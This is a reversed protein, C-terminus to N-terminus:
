VPEKKQTPMLTRLIDEKGIVGVLAGQDCVPLTHVNHKVTLTAIDELNTEPDVTILKGDHNISSVIIVKNAGEYQHALKKMVDLFINAM